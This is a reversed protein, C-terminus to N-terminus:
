GSWDRERAMFMAKVGEHRSGHGQLRLNFAQRKWLLPRKENIWLSRARDESWCDACVGIYPLTAQITDLLPTIRTRIGCHHHHKDIQYEPVQRLKDLLASLDDSSLSVPETDDIITGTLQLTGIRMFFRVMEGLQFSDCQASSDYGLRCQRERSMYLELFHSQLSQITELVCDRRYSLEEEIRSPLDWWLAGTLSPEGGVWGRTILRTTYKELWPAYDLLTAVLIRQRVKDESLGADQRATTKGDIAKLLKKRKVHVRVAEIADFRDAVIALNAINTLPPFSQTDKRHLIYLFDSMLAEISKVSSIRGIDSIKLVPLESSPTETITAYQERLHKHKEEVYAGEGFRGDLLRAYYKSSTKLIPSSVRFASRLVSGPKLEHEVHLVVDGHAAILIIDQDTTPAGDKSTEADSNMSTPTLIGNTRAADAPKTM